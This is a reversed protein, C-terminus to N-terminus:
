LDHPEIRHIIRMIIVSLLSLIMFGLLLPMVTNNFSQGIWTGLVVAIFNSVLGVVSAATGAIHGLPHLAMANVNGFLLGITFFCGTCSTMFFWLPPQGDFFYAVGSALGTILVMAVTARYMIMKMGFRMVMRGNAVSAIGFAFALVGFYIPFRTGLDYIDVFIQQASNLYGYFSGGVLGAILTYSLAIRNSLVEGAARWNEALSFPRRKEVPLTEPQRLWLWVLVIVALVVFSVFIARWHWFYLIGQGLAPAIIPVLIFVSMIFSMVRAMERGEFEDRVLAVAVTRPGAAGLGQLFRGVLMVTFNTAVISLLSGLIFLAIGLYM